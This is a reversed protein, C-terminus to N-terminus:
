KKLSRSKIIRGTSIFSIGQANSASIMVTEVVPQFVEKEAVWEVIFNAGSGGSKDTREVVFDKSALSGLEIPRELYKRVLRGNTDYYRVSTIIIPTTLDTNRVSLTASLDIAQKQNEYYIHSYVPVYITQEIVIKSKDVKVVKLHAQPVENNTHQRLQTTDQLTCATCLISVIVSYLYPYQKM